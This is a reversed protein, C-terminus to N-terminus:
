ARSIKLLFFVSPQKMREITDQRFEAELIGEAIDHPTQADQGAPDHHDTDAKYRSLDHAPPHLTASGSLRGCRCSGLRLASWGRSSGLCSSTCLLSPSCIHQSPQFLCLRNKDSHVHWVLTGCSAIINGRLSRVRLKTCRLTPHTKRRSSSIVEKSLNKYM